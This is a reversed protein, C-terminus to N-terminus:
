YVYFDYMMALLLGALSCKKESANEILQEHMDLLNVLRFVHSLRYFKLIAYVINNM